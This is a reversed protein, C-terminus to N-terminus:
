STGGELLHRAKTADEATLSYVGREVSRGDRDRIRELECPLTMGLRRRISRIVDPSNSAGAIRDLQERTKPGDLLASLARRQRPSRM